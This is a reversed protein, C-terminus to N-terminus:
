ALPGKALRRNAWDLLDSAEQQSIRTGISIWVGIPVQTAPCTRVTREIAGVLGVAAKTAQKYKATFATLYVERLVTVLSGSFHADLAVQIESRSCTKWAAFVPTLAM